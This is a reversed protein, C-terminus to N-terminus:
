SCLSFVVEEGPKIIKVEDNVKVEIADKNKVVSNIVLQEDTIELELDNYNYKLNFELEDWEEPLIPDFSIGETKVELGAFGKVIAQWTGGCAATHIGGIFTGGHIAKNTNYLDVTASKMLHKYAEDTNGVKSAVISHSSPSLSSGHECRPEYYEYNAKMVEEDFSNHMCLLQVVDAQKSVQTRVTVGVPWGLYEHPDKLRSEVEKPTVDELDFYGDFQEILLTEEDPQPLYILEVMERWNDIDEEGLGLSGLLKILKQPATDQLKEYITVAKDLAYQAQYNTFANNDVNEHYEDPGLLRIFEYRNKDKKFYAHAVLFQAIEFVIEAGYDEIFEWDGTAQYYQWVAYAIDPSVHIQWDNFHNRIKRGTLVNEFFFDPCLEEGSKGSVWAYYAGYYGLDKAKKRAGDLTHYRYKLINKALEPRTYLFMPMNFIEQDWFASGQYAQCSLGRAGIPLKDSHAPTCITNHYLNFRLLTQAELDGDVKIDSVEWVQDWKTQHVEKLKDYGAEIATKADRTAAEFPNALDNSSYVSMVKKLTVQEGAALDFKLQRLIRKEEKIIEESKPKAGVIELAEAVDLEINSEGTVAKIVTLDDEVILEHDKLHQGNLDWVQGDIGTILTVETDEQVEFTYEMPVLHLNDYSAFKEVDLQVSAGNNASWNLKRNYLGHKLNIERQYDNIKGEFESVLEGELYLKTYLANPANCLERWKGDAMDYTDTVICGVYEDAGWEASTGRYGLYGNGIMFNSGTIVIQDENFKNERIQWGNETSLNNKLKM